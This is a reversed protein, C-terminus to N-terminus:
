VGKVSYCVFEIDHYENNLSDDYKFNGDDDQTVIYEKKVPYLISYEDCYSEKLTIVDKCVKGDINTGYHVTNIHDIYYTKM